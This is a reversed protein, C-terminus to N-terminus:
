PTPTEQRPQQMKVNLPSMESRRRVAKRRLLNPSDPALSWWKARPRHTYLERLFLVLGALELPETFDCRGDEPDYWQCVIPPPGSFLDSAPLARPQDTTNEM